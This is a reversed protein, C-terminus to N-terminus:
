DTRRVGLTESASRIRAPLASRDGDTSRLFLEGRTALTARAPIRKAERVGAVKARASRTGSRTPHSTRRRGKTAVSSADLISVSRVWRHYTVAGKSVSPERAAPTSQRAVEQIRGSVDLSPHTSPSKPPLLRSALGDPRAGDRSETPRDRRLDAPCPRHSGKRSDASSLRHTKTATEKWLAPPPTVTLFNTAM